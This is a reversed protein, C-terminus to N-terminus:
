GCGPGRAYGVRASELVRERVIFSRIWRVSSVAFSTSCSSAFGLTSSKELLALVRRHLRDRCDLCSSFRWVFFALVFQAALFSLGAEIMTESLQEDIAHGHTSIDEPPALRIASGYWTHTILPVASALAIAVVVVAFLKGM